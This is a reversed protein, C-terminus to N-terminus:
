KSCSRCFNNSELVSSNKKAIKEVELFCFHVELENSVVSSCASLSCKVLAFVPFDVEKTERSLHSLTAHNSSKRIRLDMM